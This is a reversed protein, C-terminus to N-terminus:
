FRLVEASNGVETAGNWLNPDYATYQNYDVNNEYGAYLNPDIYGSSVDTNLVQNLVNKNENIQEIPVNPPQVENNVQLQSNLSLNQNLQTNLTQNQITNAHSVNNVTSCSAPIIASPPPIGNLNSSTVVTNNSQTLNLNHPDNSSTIIASSNKTTNQTTEM